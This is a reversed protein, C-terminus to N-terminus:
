SGQASCGAGSAHLRELLETKRLQLFGLGGRRVFVEHETGVQFSALYEQKFWFELDPADDTMPVLGEATQLYRYATLGQMDTLKNARIAGPYAAVLVAIGFLTAVVTSEMWGIGGGQKVWSAAAWTALIGILSFIGVAPGLKQAFTETGILADLCACILILTAAGLLWRVRRISFLDLMQPGRLPLEFGRHRFFRALPLREASAIADSASAWRSLVGSTDERGGPLDHVWGFAPVKRLQSDAVFVLQAPVPQNSMPSQEFYVSEIQSLSLSWDPHVAQLFAPLGSRYEISDHAVLIRVGLLGVCLAVVMGGVLIGQVLAAVPLELPVEIGMLGPLLFLGLPAVSLVLCGAILLKMAARQVRTLLRLECPTVLDSSESTRLDEM